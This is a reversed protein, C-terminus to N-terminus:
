PPKKQQERKGDYYKNHSISPFVAPEIIDGLIRFYHAPQRIDVILLITQISKGIDARIYNHRLPFLISFIL